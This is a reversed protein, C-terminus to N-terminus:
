PKERRRNASFVAMSTAPAQKMRSWSSMDTPIARAVYRFFIATCDPSTDCVNIIPTLM